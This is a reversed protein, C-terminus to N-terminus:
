PFRYSCHRWWLVSAPVLVYSLFTYISLCSTCPMRSRCRHHPIIIDLKWNVRFDNNNMTNWNEHIEHITYLWPIIIDLEWNVTIDNNNTTNWNEHIKHVTKFRHHPITIDLKWNVTFDNNTMTNWNGHIEHIINFWSILINLSISTM